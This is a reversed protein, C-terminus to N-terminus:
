ESLVTPNELKQQCLRASTEHCAERAEDATAAASSTREVTRAARVAAFALAAASQAANAAWLAQSPSNPEISSARAACVRADIACLWAM